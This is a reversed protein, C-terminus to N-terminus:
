RAPQRVSVALLQLVTVCAILLPSSLAIPFSIVTALVTMGLCIIVQVGAILVLLSVVHSKRALEPRSVLARRYYAFVILPTAIIQLSANALYVFRPTVSSWLEPMIFFPVVFVFGGLLYAVFPTWLLASSFFSQDEESESNSLWIVRNVIVILVIAILVFTILVLGEVAPVAGTRFLEFYSGLSRFPNTLQFLAVLLWIGSEIGPLRIRGALWILVATSGVYSAVGALRALLSLDTLGAAMLARIIAEGQMASFGVMLVIAFMRMRNANDESSFQWKELRPVILKAVELLTLVSLLPLVGLSFISLRETVADPMDQLLSLHEGSLGPLPINTGLAMVLM